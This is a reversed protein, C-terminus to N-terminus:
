GDVSNTSVGAAELARNVRNNIFAEIDADIREMVYFAVERTLGQGYNHRIYYLIEDRFWSTQMETKVEELINQKELLQNRRTQLEELLYNAATIVNDLQVLADNVTTTTM